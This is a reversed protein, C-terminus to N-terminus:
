QNQRVFRVLELLKNSSEVAAVSISFRGQKKLESALNASIDKINELASNFSVSSGDFLGVEVKESGLEGRIKKVLKELQETKKADEPMLKQNAEFSRYLEDGIKAAEVSRDLLQSFEKEEAKIRQKAFTEKIGTSFDERPKGDASSADPMQQARASLVSISIFFLILLYKSIQFPM